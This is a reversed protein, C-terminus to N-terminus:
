SLADLLRARNAQADPDEGYMRFWLDAQRRVQGGTEAATRSNEVERRVRNLRRNWAARQRADMRALEDATPIVIPM